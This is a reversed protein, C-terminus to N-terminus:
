KSTRGRINLSATITNRMLTDITQTEIPVNRYQLHARSTFLGLAAGERNSKINTYLPKIQDATLGGQAGTIKQYDAYEKSAAWVIIDCSDMYRSVNAAAPKMAGQLFYYFSQEPTSLITSSRNPDAPDRQQTAFHDDASDVRDLGNGLEQWHFRIIGEYTWSYVPVQVTLDYTANPIILPFSINYLRTIAPVNFGSPPPAIVNNIAFTQASDVQGTANNTVVLRYTLGATLKRTSKYAYNPVTFFAGPQKPYGESSLDVRPMVEDFLLKGNKGTDTLEKLHVTINNYFSSDASTAMDLASKNEDLFAKQIRVYHATDGIDLLGYVVTVNKYPAAVEFDESCSALLGFLPILFLLRTVSSM